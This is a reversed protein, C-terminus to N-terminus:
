ICFGFSIGSYVDVNGATGSEKTDGTTDIYVNNVDYNRSPSRTFWFFADGAGNDKKKIRNSATTYYPYQTGEGQWSGYADLVEVGAFLFMKLSETLITGSGGGTATKKNVEVIANQLDKPFTPILTDVFYTYLETTKFGGRNSNNTRLRRYDKMLQTMGFTIPAKGSGDAKDDHNFDMIAVTITEGNTVIDKTDGIKWLDQAVGDAAAQAIQEWSNEALVKSYSPPPLTITVDNAPQTFTTYYHTENPSIVGYEDVRADFQWTGVYEGDQSQIIPTKNNSFFIVSEGEKATKQVVVGDPAHINYTKVPSKIAFMFAIPTYDVIDMEDPKGSSPNIFWLSDQYKSIDDRTALYLSDMKSLDYDYKKTVFIDEYWVGSLALFTRGGDPSLYPTIVKQLDKPLMPFVNTQLYLFYDSLESPIRYPRYTEDRGIFLYSEGILLDKTGMVLTPNNDYDYDIGVIVVDVSQDVLEEFPSSGPLSGPTANSKSLYITKTNGNKWTSPIKNHEVAWAIDEWSNEGFVDNLPRPPPSERNVLYLKKTKSDYAASIPAGSVWNYDIKNGNSNLFDVAVNNLTYTNTSEFDKPAYFNIKEANIPATIKIVSGSVTATANAFVDNSSTGFYVSM